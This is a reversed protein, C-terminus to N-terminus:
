FTYIDEVFEEGDMIYECTYNILEPRGSKTEWPRLEYDHSGEGLGCECHKRDLDDLCAQLDYSGYPMKLKEELWAQFREVNKFTAM